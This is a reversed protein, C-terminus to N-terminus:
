PCSNRYSFFSLKDLELDVSDRWRQQRELYIGHSTDIDFQSQTENFSHIMENVLGLIQAKSSKRNLNLLRRIKRAYLEGIDFHLQEHQLCYEDDTATWSTTEFVASV